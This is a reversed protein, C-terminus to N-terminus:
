AGVHVYATWLLPDPPFIKNIGEERTTDDRLARVSEHLALGVNEMLLRSSQHDVLKSYFNKSLNRSRADNVQWLTGIVRPFGALLCAGVLHISEDQLIFMETHMAHCASLYMLEVDQLQMESIDRVSLSDVQWDDLVIRSASPDKLSEGHCALHIIHCWKLLRTVDLKTPKEEVITPNHRIMIDKVDQVESKAFDLASWEPTEPAAVLAVRKQAAPGEEAENGPRKIQSRANLLAKVSPAYSSVVCDLVNGKFARKGHYGAGHIPFCSLVGTPIWWVRRWPGNKPEHPKALGLAELVHKIASEWLWELIENMKHITQRRNGVNDALIIKVFSEARQKAEEASLASLPLATVKGHEIIIADCRINAVNLIIVPGAESITSLDSQSPGLLFTHFGDMDRVEEVLDDFEEAAAHRRKAQHSLLVKNTGQVLSPLLDSRFSSSDLEDRLAIFRKARGPDASMLATLDARTRLQLTSIIGRGTELVGLAEIASSAGGAELCVAAASSSLGYLISVFFQQDTRDISQPCCQPMLRVASQLIKDAGQTDGKRFYLLTSCSHAALLRELPPATKTGHAKQYADIAGTLDQQSGYREYRKKLANGLINLDGAQDFDHGGNRLRFHQMLDIARDLDEEHSPLESRASLASALGCVAGANQDFFNSAEEKCEIAENIVKLSQSENMGTGAEFQRQLASGLARLRLGRRPEKPEPAMELARKCAQVAEEIDEPQGTREFRGRLADGLNTFCAGQSKHKLSAAVKLAMVSADADVIAGTREFRRSLANGLQNQYAPYDPDVQAADYDTMDTHGLRIASVAKDAAAVAADVNEVRGYREFLDKYVCALTSYYPATDAVSTRSMELAIRIAEEISKLSLALDDDNAFSEYRALLANSLHHLFHDLFDGGHDVAVKAYDVAQDLDRNKGVEDANVESHMRLLDSLNHNLIAWDPHTPDACYRAQEIDAIANDLISLDGTRAYKSSRERGSNCYVVAMLCKVEQFASELANLEFASVPGDCGVLESREVLRFLVARLLLQLAAPTYFRVEIIFEQNKQYNILADAIVVARSYAAPRWIPFFDVITPPSSKGFVVNGSMNGDVLQCAFKVPKQLGKLRMCLDGLSCDIATEAEGWAVRDAVAFPSYGTRERLFQPKPMDKLAASFAEAITLLDLWRETSPLIDPTNSFAM